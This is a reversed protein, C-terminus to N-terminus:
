KEQGSVRSVPYLYYHGPTYTSLTPAYTFSATEDPDLTVSESTTGTLTITREENKPSPTPTLAKLQENMMKVEELEASLYRSRFKITVFSTTSTKM